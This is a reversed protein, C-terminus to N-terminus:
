LNHNVLPPVLHLGKLRRAKAVHLYRLQQPLQQQHQDRPSGTKVIQPSPSGQVETDQAQLNQWEVGIKVMAGVELVEGVVVADNLLHSFTNTGEEAVVAVEGREVEEVVELLEEEMPEEVESEQTEGITGMRVGGKMVGIAVAEGEAM